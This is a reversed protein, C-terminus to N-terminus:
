GRPWFSRARPSTRAGTMGETITNLRNWTPTMLELYQENQDAARGVVEDLWAGTHRPDIGGFKKFAGFFHDHGTEGEAPVFGRMSFSDILGNYLRLDKYVTAAPVKGPECQPAAGQPNAPQNISRMRPLDACLGDEIAEKIFTEAYVASHLHNHLDAGKPMRKLFDRLALPNDRVRELEHVTREAAAQM